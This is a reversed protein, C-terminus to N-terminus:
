MFYLDPKNTLIRLLCLVPKELNYGSLGSIHYYEVSYENMINRIFSDEKICGKKDKKNGCLVKPKNTTLMQDIQCLENQLGKHKDFMVIRADANESIGDNCKVTIYGGNTLFTRTGSALSCKRDKLFEGTIFKLIFASKGCDASGCVDITFTAM